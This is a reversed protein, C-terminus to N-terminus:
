WLGRMRLWVVALALTLGTVPVGVRAHERWGIRVDHAAAQEAVILNAISGVLLLNGALTSGLALIPGASSRPAVHLLLM